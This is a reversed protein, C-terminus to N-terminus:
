IVKHDSMKLFHTTKKEERERERGREKKVRGRGGEMGRKQSQTKCHVWVPKIYRVSAKFNGTGTLQGLPKCVDAVM